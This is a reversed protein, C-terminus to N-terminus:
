RSPPRLTSRPSPEPGSRPRSSVRPSSTPGAIRRPRTAPEPTTDFLGYETVLVSPDGPDTAFAPRDSFVTDGNVDRGTTINFPRGTSLIVFPNFRVQWPGNVNGGFIFRHRTDFSASGYEGALDGSRAPFSGVGDADSRVRGLFYRAFITGRRPKSEPNSESDSRTQADVGGQYGDGVSEVTM